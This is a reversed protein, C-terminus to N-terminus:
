DVEDEAVASAAGRERRAPASPVAPRPEHRRGHGTLADLLEPLASLGGAAVAVLTANQWLPGSASAAAAAVALLCRPIRSAKAPRVRAFRRGAPSPALPLRLRAM